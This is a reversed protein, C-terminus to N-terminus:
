LEKFCRDLVELTFKVDEQNICMPPKIRFVNGYLGGKGIILGMEKAREFIQATEEKAPTKTTKDKVLEMGIM